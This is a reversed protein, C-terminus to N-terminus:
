HAPCCPTPHRSEFPVVRGGAAPTVTLILRGDRWQPRVFDHTDVETDPSAAGGGLIEVGDIASCALVEAVTLTGTLRDVGAFIVARGRPDATALGAARALHPPSTVRHTTTLTIAVHPFPERVLHTCATQPRPDLSAIWQDAEALDRHGLSVGFSAPGSM